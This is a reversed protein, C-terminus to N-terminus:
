DEVETYLFEKFVDKYENALLAYDTMLISCVYKNSVENETIALDANANAKQILLEYFHQIKAILKQAENEM